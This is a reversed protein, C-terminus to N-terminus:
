DRQLGGEWSFGERVAEAITPALSSGEAQGRKYEDWWIQELKDQWAADAASQGEAFGDRYAANVDLETPGSDFLATSFGLVTVLAVGAVLALAYWLRSSEGAAASERALERLEQPDSPQSWHSM